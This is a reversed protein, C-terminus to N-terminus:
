EVRFSPYLGSESLPERGRDLHSTDGMQVCRFAMSGDKPDRQPVLTTVSSPPLFFHHLLGTPPLTTLHALMVMSVAFHCFLAITVDKEEECRYLCGTRHYGYRALLEDVGEAVERYCAQIDGSQALTSQEWEQRFYDSETERYRPPLDWCMRPKTAEAPQVRGTFERMWHLIEAEKSHRALTDRATDRARGLPSCYFDDIPVEALRDALLAAERWGKPTLSDISYDPEGHRILMIQLM